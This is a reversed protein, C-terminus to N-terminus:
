VVPPVKFLHGVKEPANAMAEDRGAWDESKDDRWYPEIETPTVLPEVNQTNVKSIQEFYKLIASFQAPYVKFEDETLKLRALKAVKELAKQDIM